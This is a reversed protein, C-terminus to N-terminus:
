GRRHAGYRPMTIAAPQAIRAPAPSVVVRALAATCLIGTAALVATMPREKTHDNMSEPPPLVPQWSMFTAAPHQCPM